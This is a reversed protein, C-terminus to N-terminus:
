RGLAVQRPTFRPDLAAPAEDLPQPLQDLALAATAARVRREVALQVLGDGANGGVDLCQREVLRDGFEVFQDAREFPLM